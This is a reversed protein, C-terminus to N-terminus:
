TSREFGREVLSIDEQTPVCMGTGTFLVYGVVAAFIYKILFKKKRPYLAIFDTGVLVTVNGLSPSCSM